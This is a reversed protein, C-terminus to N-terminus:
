YIEVLHFLFISRVLYKLVFELYCHKYILVDYIKQINPISKFKHASIYDLIIRIFIYQAYTM